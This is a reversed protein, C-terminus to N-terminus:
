SWAHELFRDPPPETIGQEKWEHLRDDAPCRGRSVYRESFETVAGLTLADTSHRPLVDIAVAFCEQAASALVPHELGDRAADTWLGRTSELAPRVLAAAEDDDMLVTTVAVAVRWWPDPLADIMRLELWGRPRVPPFLTTLHYELDDVTPSGLRHGRTVWEHFTLPELMPTFRDPTRILMVPADLVYQVWARRADGHDDGVPAARGRDIADWTALRASRWGSPGGNALPSNAFTAALVPGLAHARRWRAEIDDAHGADLNIQIAASGCMMTRGAPGDADFYTEMAAYRPTDVCRRPLHAPALGLGLLGLGARELHASLARADLTLAACAADIDHFPLSSLEVQGGPELTLSSGAPLAGARAIVDPTQATTGDLPVPLWELEVGVRGAFSPHFSQEAVLRRADHLGLTPTASPV